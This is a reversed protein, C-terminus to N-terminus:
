IRNSEEGLGESGGFEVIVDVILFQEGNEFSELFPSM